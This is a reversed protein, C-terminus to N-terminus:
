IILSTIHNAIKQMPARLRDVTMVIYGATVDRSPKHNVLQKVAYSSIDLSEAITVFTRRLDHLMFKIGSKNAVQAIAKKPEVLHGTKGTSPFVWKSKGTRKQREKLLDYVYDSMPIELPNGSKTDPVALTKENFDVNSWELSLGESKRMGTFLLLCLFDRVASNEVLMVTQYWTKLQTPKIVSKRVNQKFWSKGRSLIKVPNLPLSENTLQAYNYIARLLQMANNATTHHRDKGLTAHRKLIMENTIQNLPTKMWDSFWKERCRKLRYKSTKSLYTKAEEYAECAHELTIGKAATERKTKNPNEGNAMRVLLERAKSRAQETTYLGHKGITTRVTTGNVDRQAFYSKSKTGIVLGFGHLENDTVIKQGKAVLPQREVFRKTIKDQTM